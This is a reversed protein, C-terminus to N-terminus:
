NTANIGMSVTPRIPLPPVIVYQLLLDIPSSNEGDMGFFIIDEPSIHSLLNYVFPSTLETIITKSSPDNFIKKLSEINTERNSNNLKMRSKQSFLIIASEYKTKYSKEEKNKEEQNELDKKNIEHIIITPGTVGPIHKVKGNVAGCYPCIKVKNCLIAIERLLNKIRNVSLKKIKLAKLRMKHKEEEPLLIRSCNKCICKLIEIVKKFFGIHFIPLGLRFHGFHGPCFELKKNCTPCVLGKRNVGLHPDIPSFPIPNNKGDYLVQNICELTSLKGIESSSLVGFQIEKIQNIGEKSNVILESMKM